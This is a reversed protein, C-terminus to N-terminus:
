PSHSACGLTFLVIGIVLQGVFVYFPAHDARLSQLAFSGSTKAHSNQTWEDFAERARLEDVALSIAWPQQAAGGGGTCM